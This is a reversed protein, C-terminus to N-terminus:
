GRGARRGGAGSSWAADARADVDDTGADTPTM